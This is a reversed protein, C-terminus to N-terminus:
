VSQGFLFEGALEWPGGQYHWLLLGEGQGALPQWTELMQNYLARAEQSTVKNQITVHPRLSRRDQNTLWPHWHESLMQRIPMLEPCHVEIAVGNGLFRLEPLALPLALAHACVYQLTQRIEDIHDGPLAHFLTVHAPLFNREPPFHKQRLDNLQEFTSADLKLTLVLPASPDTAPDPEPGPELAMEPAMEPAAEPAAEAAPDPGLAPISDTPLEPM